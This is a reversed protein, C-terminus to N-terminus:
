ALINCFLQISFIYLHIIWILRQCKLMAKMLSLSNYFLVTILPQSTDCKYKYKWEHMTYITSQKFCTLYIGFLSGVKVNITPCSKHKQNYIRLLIYNFKNEILSNGGWKNGKRRQMWTKQKNLSNINLAHENHSFWKGKGGIM